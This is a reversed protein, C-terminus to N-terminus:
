INGMIVGDVVYIALYAMAALLGLVCGAIAKGSGSPAGRGVYGLMGGAVGLVLPLGSWFAPLTLLLAVVSLALATGGASPRILARPLLFGYVGGTVVVITALVVVMEPIGHAGLATWSGSVVAVGIAVPAVARRMREREIDFSTSTLPSATM